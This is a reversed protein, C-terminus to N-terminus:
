MLNYLNPSFQPRKKVRMVMQKHQIIERIHGNHWFRDRTVTQNPENELTKGKNLCSEGARMHLRIAQGVGKFVHM